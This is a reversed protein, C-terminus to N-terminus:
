FHLAAGVGLGSSRAEPDPRFGVWQGYVRLQDFVQYGFLVHSETRIGKGEPRKGGLFRYGTYLRGFSYGLGLETGLALSYYDPTNFAGVNGLFLGIHVDLPGGGAIDAGVGARGMWQGDGAALGEVSAYADRRDVVRAMGGWVLENGVVSSDMQAQLRVRDFPAHHPEDDDLHELHCSTTHTPGECALAPGSLLLLLATM